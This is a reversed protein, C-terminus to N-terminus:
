DNLETYKMSKGKSTEIPYKEANEKIKNLAAEELDIDLIDVLKVLYNFIDAIEKEIEQRKEPNDIEKLGGDNSWQFIELLESAEVSLATALNKPNHFQEWDRDKSFERLKLKLNELNLFVGGTSRNWRSRSLWIGHNTWM